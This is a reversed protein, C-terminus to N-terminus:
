KTFILGDDGQEQDFMTQLAPLFDAKKVQLHKSPILLAEFHPAILSLFEKPNVGSVNRLHHPLYEVFLTRANRLINQMGKLAFYESGEIDMFVLSFEEGKLHEDLAYAQVSITKPSDYFYEFARIKPMRKAGGSNSKSLVFEITETKDSAAINYARVNKADNLLLNIKLLGFTDPNAEIAVVSRCHNATPVVLSGIHAGVVLANDNSGIYRFVRQLEHQGYSGTKRLVEGVGMDEPDTAFLGNDTRSVVAITNTGLLFKRTKGVLSSAFLKLYIFLRRVIM